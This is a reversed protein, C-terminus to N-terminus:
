KVGRYKDLAKEIVLPMAILVVLGIIMGLGLGFTAMTYTFAAAGNYSSSKYLIAFLLATVVYGKMRNISM